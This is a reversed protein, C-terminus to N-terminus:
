GTDLFKKLSSTLAELDKIQCQWVESVRWGLEELAARKEADREINRELKPLWYGANSKPPQGIRCGHAHWYCGHVFLAARRSPFVIDPTGPLDRRHLRFRYGM